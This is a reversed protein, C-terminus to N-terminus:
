MATEDTGAGIVLLSATVLSGVSQCFQHQCTEVIRVQSNRQCRRVYFGISGTRAGHQSQVPCQATRSAKACDAPGSLNGSFNLPQTEQVTALPQENAIAM